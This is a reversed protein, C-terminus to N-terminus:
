AFVIDDALQALSIDLITLEEGSNFEIVVNGNKTYANSLAGRGWGDLVLTDVNNQFDMIRDEDDGRMFVFTDAGRGGWLLDDDERGYITDAGDGGWIRDDGRGGRLEDAGTNGWIRDNGNHGRLVDTGDLGRLHNAGRDGTIDDGFVSGKVNEMSIAKDGTADGGRLIGKFLDVTVGDRSTEYSLTDRGTGGNLIDAGFGGELLDNGTGGLLVDSGGEGFLDDNGGKGDLRNDVKNGRLSDRFQSAVVNEFASFSDGTAFGSGIEGTALDIYIGDKSRVYNLTDVGQGGDLSMRGHGQVFVTDDGSGGFITVDDRTAFIRDSGGNGYATDNGGGTWIMDDGGAAGAPDGDHDGHIVDAKRGGWIKDDGGILRTGSGVQFVDGAMVNASTVAGRMVDDGGYVAATTTASYADGYSYVVDSTRAERLDILDDGGVLTATDRVAQADGSFQISDDAYLGPFDDGRDFVLRDDGGIVTASAYLNWVDGLVFRAQGEFEFDGAILTVTDYLYAYSGMIYSTSGFDGSAANDAGYTVDSGRLRPGDLAFDMRGDGTTELTVNGDLVAQWAADSTPVANGGTGLILFGNINLGEIVVDVDSTSGGRPSFMIEDITGTVFRGNGDVVIGRGTMTVQQGDTNTFVYSTESSSVFSSYTLEGGYANFSFASLGNYTIKTM